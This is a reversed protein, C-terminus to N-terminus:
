FDENKEFFRNVLKRVSEKTNNGGVEIAVRQWSYLRVFRYYIAQRTLTDPITQIFKMAEDCKKQIEFHKEFVRREAEILRLALEGVKDAIGSGHVANPLPSKILSQSKLRELERKWMRLERDLFYIQKLENQTM